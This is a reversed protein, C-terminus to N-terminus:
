KVETEALSDLWALQILMQVQTRASQIRAGLARYNATELELFSSKGVTYAQYTLQALESNEKVSQVDLEAERKLEQWQNRNKEWTAKLNQLTQKQQWETSQALRAQEAAQNSIRGFEYLPLSASLGASNQQIKELVPGNPYDLSAKAFAQVQPWNGAAISQAQARLAEALAALAATQPPQAAFAAQAASAFQNLSQELSDLRLLVSPSELVGPAGQELDAPLPLSFDAPENAGTLAFLDRLTNALSSQAQLLQRRASLVDQHSTLLDKRSSAGAAAQSRIDSYQKEFLKLSELLLHIQELGLQAQFYTLRTQLAVSRFLARYEAQKGALAAEAARRAQFVGGSSWFNWSLQPGLSYNIHDGFPVAPRGPSLSVEPIESVYRWTGELTLRPWLLSGQADVRAQAAEAEAQKAQLAPSFALAQAEVQVLPLTIEPPNGALAAAPWFLWIPILGWGSVGANKKM